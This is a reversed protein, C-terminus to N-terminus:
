HVGYNPYITDLFYEYRSSFPANINCPPSGM